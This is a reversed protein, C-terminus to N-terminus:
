SLLYKLSEDSINLSASDIELHIQKNTNIYDNVADYLKDQNSNAKGILDEIQKVGPIM